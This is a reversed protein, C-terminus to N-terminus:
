LKRLGIWVDQGNVASAEEVDFKDSKKYEILKAGVDLKINKEYKAVAARIDEPLDLMLAIADKPELGAKQRLEQVMRAVERVFGEDRLEPTIATDLEVAKLKANFVIKKVNVEDALIDLLGKSNKLSSGSDGVPVMMAALPQRVKIKAEARKALGAAALERIVDMQEMLNMQSQSIKKSGAVPWDELHVSEKGGGMSSYLGESFFPTFPAMLIILERLVFGLTSSASLYDVASEPRQLRKRSRRIYWRSLNDVFSEVALGAERIQYTDLNAAVSLILQDLRALIWQDLVNSPAPPRSQVNKAYTKWFILSNYVILHMKRLTKGIEQEDFNKPEGPPTATYFYWRVADVGYTSMMAWPDVINGKSKSMKQGNKDNIHGLCIVNRYPAEYGLATAVALLTYFWGRTQDVAESIYDAPFLIDGIGAKPAQAFPFHAQAYPMSGSDYWVDAVERVRKMEGDCKKKGDTAMCPFVIEDIFPRHPDLGGTKDRPLSKVEFSLMEAPGMFEGDREMRRKITDQESWGLATETLMWITDEHSIILIEKGDYKEEIDHLFNWARERVDHLTEAGPAAPKIFREEQSPIRKAMEEGRMGSLSALNIERLREDFIIKKGLAKAVIEATEKTRLLDSSFIMDIKRKTLKKAIAEVQKRGRSTLYFNQNGSDIVDFAINESEGHRLALYKNKSGGVFRDLADYSEIVETHGCKKCEWIPLPTGWYRERSFNWDKAERLWEGFRGEKIHDPTWHVGENCAVMEKRLKSMAVFWSTRAYYLIATGCRWCFPYEHKYEEVRLFNNHRKLHEFIHEETEKAKAYEGKLEPVDKTFKGEEDVTHHQPLGVKKGLEYDDEGYMVATHVVGTGDTTTVFDAPYIKYSNSSKLLAVEFLPEYELGVLQKGSIEYAKSGELGLDKVRDLAAIFYEGDHEFAQYKINEGVALAVNGPLTWPTTTWSLIFIKDSAKIAHQGIKQGPKLKFKVYVSRDVVEKYGQALEHSSLATGCRTCWPVVRHGKYLLKKRWFQAIIWWLTEIYEPQYTIYPNEFDLWYGMRKTMREWEDKFEWVSERCKQNFAAIGYKEIEKKSKLGLQKEVQLEVPLGHTDWGAKRPVYYGQMTKYRLVIDKFSRALIHHVGPRGNATPPGEYFVFTKKGKVSKKPKNKELSKEFIKREEWFRLVREELEPLKFEGELFNQRGVQSKKQASRKAMGEFYWIKRTKEFLFLTGRFCSGALPVM